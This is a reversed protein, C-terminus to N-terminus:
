VSVSFLENLVHFLLATKCQSVPVSGAISSVLMPLCLGAGSSCLGSPCKSRLRSELVHVPNTRSKSEGSRRLSRRMALQLGPARGAMGYEKSDASVAKVTPGDPRRARTVM